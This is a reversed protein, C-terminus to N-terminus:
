TAIAEAISQARRRMLTAIAQDQCEGARVELVGIAKQALGNFRSRHQRLSPLRHDRELIGVTQYQAFGVIDAMRTQSLNLAVRVSYVISKNAGPRQAKFKRRLGWTQADSM